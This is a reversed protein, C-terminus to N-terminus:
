FGVEFHRGARNRREPAAFCFHKRERAALSKCRPRAGVYGEGM